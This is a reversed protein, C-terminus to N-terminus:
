WRSTFKLMRFIPLVRTSNTIDTNNKNRLICPIGKRNNVQAYKNKRQDNAQRKRGGMHYLRVESNNHWWCCRASSFFLCIFLIWIFRCSGGRRRERKYIETIIIIIKWFNNNWQKTINRCFWLATVPFRITRCYGRQCTSSNIVLKGYWGMWGGEGSGVIQEQTDTSPTEYTTVTHKNSKSFGTMLMKKEQAFNRGKWNAIVLARHTAHKLSYDSLFARIIMNVWWEYYPM